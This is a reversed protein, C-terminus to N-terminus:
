INKDSREYFVKEMKLFNKGDQSFNNGLGIFDDGAYVRIIKGYNKDVEVIQGNVLNDLYKRDLIIKDFDKIATDIPYLKKILDEKPIELLDESKIADKIDFDGVRVRALENVYALTGLKEGIDDVLTRIYTGKSCTVRITAKPFAFDLLEIDYINVKRKKREIEVGERALDYLKKGNVKLASYMPPIQDIEGKFTKMAQLFEEKTVVKDSKEIIEGAADLTDTKAGLILETEYVKDKTMMYDSVRTAKGIVIPLVGSAELDLTGTHGVKKMNLARRVLSVVRASSIGKEKNVNLIGKLM